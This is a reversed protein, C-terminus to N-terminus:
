DPDADFDEDIQMPVVGWEIWRGSKILAREIVWGCETDATIRLKASATPGFTKDIIVVDGSGIEIKHPKM